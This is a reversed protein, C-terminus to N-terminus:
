RNGARAAAASLCDANPFLYSSDPAARPRAACRSRDRDCRVRSSRFAATIAVRAVVRGDIVRHREAHGLAPPSAREGRRQGREQPPSVTQIPLSHFIDRRPANGAQLLIESASATDCVTLGAAADDALHRPLRGTLAQELNAEHLNAGRLDAGRLDAAAFDAGRLNAARFRAAALMTDRFKAEAFISRDLRAAALLAGSFDFGSFDYGLLEARKGRRGGSQVWLEHARLQAAVADFGLEMPGPAIGAPEVQQRMDGRLAAGTFDGGVLTAGELSSDSIEAGRFRAGSLDARRLNTSELLACDFDVHRLRAATFDTDRLLTRALRANRRPADGTRGSQGREDGPSLNAEAFDGGSLDADDFYAGWLKANRFVAGRLDVSKFSCDLFTAGDFSMGCFDLGAFDWNVVTTRARRRRQPADSNHWDRLQALLEQTARVESTEPLPPGSEDSV